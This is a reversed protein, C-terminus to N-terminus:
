LRLHPDPERTAFERSMLYKKEIIEGGEKDGSKLCNDRIAALLITTTALRQQGDIIEPRESPAPTTVITGLFYESDDRIARGFDQFLDKVHEDKWAYSRQYIPVALRNDELAHGLGEPKIKIGELRSM